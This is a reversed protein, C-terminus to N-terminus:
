GHSEETQGVHVSGTNPDFLRKDRMIQPAKPGTNRVLSYWGSERRAFGARTLGDLYSKATAQSVRPASDGSFFAILAAPTLPGRHIRLVNWMAQQGRGAEVPSGDKRVRPADVGVDRVLCYRGQAVRELYAGNCLGTLYDRIRTLPTLGPLRDRIDVATFSAAGDIHLRRITNWIAGRDNYINGVSPKRSM